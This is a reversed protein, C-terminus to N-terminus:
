PRIDGVALRRGVAEYFDLPRRAVGKPQPPPQVPPAKRHAPDVRRRNRGELVPHSAILRGEEFIRVETPHNQV